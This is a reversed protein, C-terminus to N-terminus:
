FYEENADRDDDGNHIYTHDFLRPVFYTPTTAGRTEVHEIQSAQLSSYTWRLVMTHRHKQRQHFPGSMHSHDPSLWVKFKGSNAWNCITVPSPKGCPCWGKHHGWSWLFMGVCELMHNSGVLAELTLVYLCMYLSAFASIYEMRYQNTGVAEPRSDNSM